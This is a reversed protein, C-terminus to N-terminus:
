HAGVDWFTMGPRLIRQILSAVEPESYGLYYILAGAGGKPAEIELEPGLPLVWPESKFTWRLRWSFRKLLARAPNQQFDPRHFLRNLLRTPSITETASM